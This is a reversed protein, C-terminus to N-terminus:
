FQLYFSIWYRLCDILYGGSLVVTFAGRERAYKDSLQATYAALGVAVDDATPYVLLTQGGAVTSRIPNSGSAMSPRSSIPSRLSTPPAQRTKTSSLAIKTLSSLTLTQTKSACRISCKYSFNTVWSQHPNSKDKRIARPTKNKQLRIFRVLLKKKFTYIARPTKLNIVLLFDPFGHKFHDRNPSNSGNKRFIYISKYKKSWFIKKENFCPVNM